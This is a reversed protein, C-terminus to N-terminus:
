GSGTLQKSMLWDTQPDDGLLFIHTGFKEFGWRLYFEIAQHNKEWVGLWIIDYKNETATQICKRMLATGVGKGIFSRIAYIRAIEICSSGEYFPPVEGVRMKAYGAPKKDHYVLFFINQVEAVEKMLSERSFQENMFKTMNAATNHVSFTEYFTERSLDAILAADAITAFRTTLSHM